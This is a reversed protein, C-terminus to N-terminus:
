KSSVLKAKKLWRDVTEDTYRKKFEDFVADALYRATEARSTFHVNPALSMAFNLHIDRNKWKSRVSNSGINSKWTHVNQTQYFREKLTARIGSCIQLACCALTLNADAAAWDDNSMARKGLSENADVVKWLAYAAYATYMTVGVPCIQDIVDDGEFRVGALLTFEGLNAGHRSEIPVCDAISRELEMCISALQQVTVDVPLHARANAVMSRVLLQMPGAFDHELPNLRNFQDSFEAVTVSKQPLLPQEVDNEKRFRHRRYADV